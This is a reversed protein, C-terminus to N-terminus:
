RSVVDIFTLGIFISLAVIAIPVVLKVILRKEHRLHMFYLFVLISKISAISLCIIIGFIGINLQAATVTAGTMGMLLAWVLAYTKVDNAKGSIHRAPYQEIVV